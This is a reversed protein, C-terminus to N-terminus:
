DHLVDVHEPMVAAVAPIAREPRPQTPPGGALKQDVGVLWASLRSLPRVAVSDLLRDLHARDVAFWYLRRRLPFPLAAELSLGGGEVHGGSAAHIRHYEHLMSPARLFQLTRITSHGLIHLLALTTWGMAIEFFILGLQTVAAYALSTKADPCARGVFVGHLATALGVLAVAGLAVPSSELLPRARLLLYAGLHVSIAGYFIASSPTPGEMARPLWGSFPIQAAKGMSALLLLLGVITAQQPDLTHADLAPLAASHRYHHLAFIGVLLGVDASRYTAFVRLANTVPGQREFFYSILLVSSLGVLEWGGVLLDFSGAAFGLTAGFGFLHLLLFFRRFGPERHMYTRSFAAVLGTLVTTLGLLPLSVGDFYLEFKFAYEGVRFWDGYDAHLSPLHAARMMWAGGAVCLAAATYILGTVRAVVKEPLDLGVLWSLALMLFGAGPLAVTLFLLTSMPDSSMAIGDM